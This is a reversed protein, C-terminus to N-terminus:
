LHRLKRNPLLFAYFGLSLLSCASVQFKRKVKDEKMLHRQVSNKKVGDSADLTHKHGGGTSTPQGDANTGGNVRQVTYYRRGDTGPLDTHFTENGPFSPGFIQGNQQHLMSPAPHGPNFITHNGTQHGNPDGENGM